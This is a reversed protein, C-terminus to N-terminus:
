INKHALVYKAFSQVVPSLYKNRMKAMYIYRKIKPEKIPIVSVEMMDLMPIDPMVAIGFGSEVLGAMASDEEVEYSIKPMQGLKEFEHDLFNRFGSGKRFYIQEYELTESLYVEERGALPHDKSVVLKIEEQVIPIFEIEKESIMQSCFVIDYKEEKLGEIIQETIGQSFTFDIQKGKQEELFNKALRPIFRSGLTFIYGIDIIGSSESTMARTKKVGIELTDLSTTVYDLFLKGYKTLVVRRGKKEFLYTGLEEELSSIAHSLSPQTISLEQAARTYHEVRALTKFYYLHNLNM